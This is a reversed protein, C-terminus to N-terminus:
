PGPPRALLGVKRAGSRQLLDLIALVDEYRSAKDAAIVVPQDPLRAQKDRIRAILDDRSLQVAPGGAQQDRLWISRDSRLTVELPQAPAVLRSGVSPLEIEGPTVLPATVMFIVLLVLMVDIYPVVNIQNISKRARRM